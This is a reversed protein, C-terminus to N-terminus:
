TTALAGFLVCEMQIPKEEVPLLMIRIKCTSLPFEFAILNILKRWSFFRCM